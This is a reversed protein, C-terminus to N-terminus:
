SIPNRWRSLPVRYRESSMSREPFFMRLPVQLTGYPLSCTPRYKIVRRSATSLISCVRVASCEAVAGLMASPSPDTLGKSSGFTGNESIVRVRTHREALSTQITLQACITWSSVKGVYAKNGCAFNALISVNADLYVGEMCNRNNLANRARLCTGSRVYSHELGLACQRVECSHASTAM